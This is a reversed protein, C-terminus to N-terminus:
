TIETDNYYVIKSYDANYAGVDVKTVSDASIRFVTSYDPDIYPSNSINRVLIEGVYINKSGSGIGNCLTARINDGSPRIAGISFGHDLSNDINIGFAGSVNGKANLYIKAFLGISPRSVTYKNLTMGGSGTGVIKEGKSNIFEKGEAVDEATAEDTLSPLEYYQASDTEESIQYFADKVLDINVTISGETWQGDKSVYGGWINQDKVKYVTTGYEETNWSSHDKIWGSHLDGGYKANLAAALEDTSIYIYNANNQYLVHLAFGEESLVVGLQSNGQPYKSLVLSNFTYTSSGGKIQVLNIDKRGPSPPNYDANDWNFANFDPVVQTNFYYETITDDVNIPNVPTYEKSLVPVEFDGTEGIYKVFKGVNDSTLLNAMEEPTSVIIPNDGGIVLVQQGYIKHPM